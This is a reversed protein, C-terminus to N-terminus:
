HNEYVDYLYDLQVYMVPGADRDYLYPDIQTFLGDIKPADINFYDPHSLFNVTTRKDIPQGLNPYNEKFYSFLIPATGNSDTSDLGNNPFEWLTMLEDGFGSSDNQSYYTPRYPQTTTSLIWPFPINHRGLGQEPDSSTFRSRGSSDAVFGNDELIILTDTTAHWGGARFIKPEPLGKEAFLQKSWTIIQTLEDHNYGSVLVDYGDNSNWGWAPATKPEVGAARVMDFFMHLHLGITDGHNQQRAKVWALNQAAFQQNVASSVFTRPNYFHTIPMNNHKKAINDISQLYAYPFNKGEHDLTWAVYVPYSVYVDKTESYAYGCSSVIYIRAKQIGPTVTDFNIKGQYAKTDGEKQALEVKVGQDVVEARIHFNKIGDSAAAYEQTMAGSVVMSKQDDSFEKGILMWKRPTSVSSFISDKYSDFNSCNSGDSRDVISAENAIDDENLEDGSKKDEVPPASPTYFLIRYGLYGLAGFLVVTIFLPLIASLKSSKAKKKSGQPQFQYEPEDAYRPQLYPSQDTFQQKPQQIQNNDYPQGGPAGQQNQAM